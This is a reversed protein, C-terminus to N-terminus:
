LDANSVSVPEFRNSGIVPMGQSQRGILMVLPFLNLDTQALSLREKLSDEL